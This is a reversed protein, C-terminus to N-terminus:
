DTSAGPTPEISEVAYDKKWCSVKDMNKAAVPEIKVFDDAHGFCKAKLRNTIVLSNPGAAEQLRAAINISDAIAHLPPNGDQKESIFLVDGIAAGCRMGSPQVHSDIKEQWEAAVKLAIGILQYVCSDVNRARSELAGASPIWLALIGDGMYNHVIGGAMEISRRTERYFRGMVSMILERDAGSAHVFKTYSCFDAILIIVNECEGEKPSPPAAPARTIPPISPGAGEARQESIAEINTLVKSLDEASFTAPRLHFHEMLLQNITSEDWLQLKIAHSAFFGRLDELELGAAPSIAGAIAIILSSIPISKPWHSVIDRVSRLTSVMSYDLTEDYPAKAEVLVSNGAQTKVFFDISQNTGGPRLWPTPLIFHRRIITHPFEAQVLYAVLQEFLEGRYQGVRHDIANPM